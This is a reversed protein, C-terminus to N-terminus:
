AAVEVVTPPTTTTREAGPSLRNDGFLLRSLAAVFRDLFSQDRATLGDTQASEPAAPSSPSGIAPQPPLPNTTENPGFGYDPERVSDRDEGSQFQMAAEISLRLERLAEIAKQEESLVPRRPYEEFGELPIGDDDEERARQAETGFMRHMYTALQDNSPPSTEVQPTFVERPPQFATAASTSSRLLDRDAEAIVHEVVIDSLTAATPVNEAPQWPPMAPVASTRPTETADVHVIPPQMESVIQRVVDQTSSTTSVTPIPPTPDAASPMPLRVDNEPPSVLNPTLVLAPPIVPATPLAPQAVPPQLAPQVNAMVSRPSPGDAAASIPSLTVPLPLQPATSPPPNITTTSLQPVSLAERANETVQSVVGKVDEWLGGFSGATVTADVRRWQNRIRDTLEGPIKSLLDFMSSFDVKASSKGAAANQTMEQLKQAVRPAASKIAIEALLKAVIDALTEM